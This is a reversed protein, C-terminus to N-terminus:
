PLLDTEDESPDLIMYSNAILEKSLFLYEGTALQLYLSQTNLLSSITSLKEDDLNKIADPQIAIDFKGIDKVTLILRM